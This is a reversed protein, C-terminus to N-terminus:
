LANNKKLAGAYFHFKSFDSVITFCRLLLTWVLAFKYELAMFSRFNTFVVSFTDKRVVSTTFKGKRRCIKVVLFAFCSGVKVFTLMSFLLAPTVKKLKLRFTSTKIIKTSVTTLRYSKNWYKLCYSIAM